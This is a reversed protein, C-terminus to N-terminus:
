ICCCSSVVGPPKGQLFLKDDSFFKTLNSELQYFYRKFYFICQKKLFYSNKSIKTFIWNESNKERKKLEKNQVFDEHLKDWKREAENIKMHWWNVLANCYHCLRHLLGQNNVKSWFQHTDESVWKTEDRVWFKQWRWLKMASCWFGQGGTVNSFWRSKMGKVWFFLLLSENMWKRTLKWENWFQWSGLLKTWWIKKVNSEFTNKEIIFM